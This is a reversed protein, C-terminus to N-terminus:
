GRGKPIADILKQTYAKQPSTYIEDATGIEEIRGNNM